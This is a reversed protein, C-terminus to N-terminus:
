TAPRSYTRLQRACAARVAAKLEGVTRGWGAGWEDDIGYLHGLPLDIVESSYGARTVVDEVVQAVWREGAERTLCRRALSDFVVVAAAVTTPPLAVSMEALAAPLLDRVEHVDRGNLGALERLAQGDRGAILWHAAWWPVRELGAQGLVFWAAVLEPSPVAEAPVGRNASM